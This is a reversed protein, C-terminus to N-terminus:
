SIEGFAALERLDSNFPAIRAVGHEGIEPLQKGGIKTIVIIGVIQLIGRMEHSLERFIRILQPIDQRRITVSLDVIFGQDRILLRFAASQDLEVTEVPLLM